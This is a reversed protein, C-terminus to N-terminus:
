YLCFWIPSENFLSMYYSSTLNLLCFFLPDQDPPYPTDLLFFSLFFLLYLFLFFFFPDFFPPWIFPSFFFSIKDLFSSLLRVSCPNVMEWDTWRICVCSLPSQSGIERLGSGNAGDSEYLLLKVKQLFISCPGTVSIQPNQCWNKPSNKLLKYRLFKPTWSEGYHGTLWRTTV